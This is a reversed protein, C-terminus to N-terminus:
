IRVKVAVPGQRLIYIGGPLTSCVASVDAYRGCHRGDVSYADVPAAPDLGEAKDAVIDAIGSESVLSEIDVSTCAPITLALEPTSYEVTTASSGQKTTVRWGSVELGQDSHAGSLRLTKGAWYRGDFDRHRLPIDNVTLTVDDTRGADVKVVVATGLKFYSSLHLYFFPTRQQVWRKAGSLEESYTPWWQNILKRHHPYEQAIMSSMLDLERHTGRANLFDGMYIAARDTFLTKFDEIDMLRRFLRTADYGNAWACSSDYNPNYLWNFTSYNYPAGYLGLGFDTDKAIFRWKGGQARPRWMVFNNGPFDRNDFYLNMVMFNVYEDIDMWERFQDLTQGHGSYFETFANFNDWTGEKLENWNEIIDIDEEGHYFTYIHDENTRSRINLMGMFEGNLYFVAPQWPQWDLDANLGMVRQICADRFYLYDFDNGANRLEISKWDTLGPAQDPFFEYELRKTGFRKNAYLVLSKLKADRSAGGKVRTECLQNIVADKGSEWFIEVNVPRRWDYRYNPKEYSGGTAYIGLKADYFYRRDTVMSVIPMTLARPHFIYSHTTSRPSIYGDAFVTARVQTNKRISITQTYLRSSRTPETGDTTFRIEAGEPAGEPLSLRLAFEESAIHGPHSFIPDPLLEKCLTGCNAKGPTPAAQYGWKDSDESLRGYSVNPAPQKKLGEVKSVITGDLFVYVSAGKGSDLRFDAHMGEGVKDCYVLAYTGPALNIAPLRYAEAENDSDSIRFAGLNLTYKGNNYLEVWSDPFENRDDMICDINSQMLENIVLDANVCPATLAVCAGALLTHIKM